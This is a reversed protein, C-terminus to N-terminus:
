RPRAIEVTRLMAEALAWREADPMSRPPACRRWAKRALWYARRRQGAVLSGLIVEEVEGDVLRAYGEIRRTSALASCLQAALTVTPSM